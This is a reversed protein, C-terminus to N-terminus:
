VWRAGSLSTKGTLKLTAFVLVAMVVVMVAGGAAAISVQGGQWLEWVAVPLVRNHPGALFLPVTVERFTLLGTWLGAFVLSPRILPMVVRSIITINRAGCVQACDELDSQVQVLAANTIRTVYSIRNIVSAIVIIGLTGRFPMWPLWRAAFIAWMALAFAFALGPIAHPLMVILDMIKAFRARIRVVVWSVMVSFFMVLVVVSAVFVATNWIVATGGIEVIIDRYSVLSVRSFAEASPMQSYPLLSAWLLVIMPLVVALAFYLGIFGFGLWKLHGLDIDRPRYGKGTIVEYRKAHTLYRLYYHLAVFSPLAILVGYVGAAGFALDAVDPSTPKVAYFLETALVPVKV